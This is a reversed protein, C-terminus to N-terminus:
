VGTKSSQSNNEGFFPHISLKFEKLFEKVSNVIWGEGLGERHLSPFIM